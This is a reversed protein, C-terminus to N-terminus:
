APVMALVREPHPHLVLRRPRHGEAPRRLRQVGTGVGRDGEDLLVPAVILKVLPPSSMSVVEPAPKLAVPPPVTLTVVPALGFVIVLPVPVASFTTLVVIPALPRVNWLMEALPAAVPMTSLLVPVAPPKVTVPLPPVQEDAPVQVPPAICFEVPAPIVSVFTPPPTLRVRTLMLLPASSPMRPEFTTPKVNSLERTALLPSATLSLPTSNTPRVPVADIRLEEIEPEGSFPSIRVFALPESLRVTVPLVTLLTEVAFVPLSPMWRSALSVAAIVTCTVPEVNLSLRPSWKWNEVM